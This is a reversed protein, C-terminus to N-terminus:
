DVSRLGPNRIAARAARGWVVGAIGGIVVLGLIVCLAVFLGTREGGRHSVGHPALLIRAVGGLVVGFFALLSGLAGTRWGSIAAVFAVALIALDLWQSSTM